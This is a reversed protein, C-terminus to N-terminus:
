DLAFVKVESDGKKYRTTLRLVASKVRNGMSPATFEFQMLAYFNTAPDSESWTKIELNKASNGKANISNSRVWTDATPQGVYTDQAYVSIGIATLAAFLLVKKM